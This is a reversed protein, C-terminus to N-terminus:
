KNQMEHLKNNLIELQEWYRNEQYEAIENDPNNELFTKEKDWQMLIWNYAANLIEYETIVEKKM